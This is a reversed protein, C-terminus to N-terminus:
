LMAPYQSPQALNIDEHGHIATNFALTAPLTDDHLTTPWPLYIYLTLIICMSFWQAIAQGEDVEDVGEGVDTMDEDDCVQEAQEGTGHTSDGGRLPLTSYLPGNYPPPEDGLETEPQGPSEEAARARSLTVADRRQKEMEDRMQKERRDDEYALKV